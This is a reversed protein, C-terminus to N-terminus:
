GNFSECFSNSRCHKKAKLEKDYEQREKHFLQVKTSYTQELERLQEVLELKDKMGTTRKIKDKLYKADEQESYYKIGVYAKKQRQGFFFRPGIWKAPYRVVLCGWSQWLESKIRYRTCQRGRRGTKRPEMIKEVVGKGILTKLHRDLTKRPFSTEWRLVQRGETKSFSHKSLLERWTYGKRRFSLLELIENERSKRM